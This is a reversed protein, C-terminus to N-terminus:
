SFDFRTVDRPFNTWALVQRPKVMFLGDASEPQYSEYRRLYSGQVRAFSEPTLDNTMSFDGDVIVVETASELHVQTRPNALLDRGWRTHHVDGDAYLRDDVWAGWIPRAHPAGQDDSTSFWFHKAQELRVRVVAWDLPTQEGTDNYGDPLRAPVGTPGTTLGGSM